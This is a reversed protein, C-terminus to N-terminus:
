IAWNITNKDNRVSMNKCVYPLDLGKHLIHMLIDYPICKKILILPVTDGNRKEALINSLYAAINYSFYGNFDIMDNCGGNYIDKTVNEIFSKAFKKTTPLREGSYFNVKLDNPLKKLSFIISKIERRNLHKVSNLCM